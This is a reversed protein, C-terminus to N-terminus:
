IDIIIKIFFSVFLIVSSLKQRGALGCQVSIDTSNNPDKAMSCNGQKLDVYTPIKPLVIAALNISRGYYTIRSASSYFNQWQTALQSTWNINQILTGLATENTSFCILYM